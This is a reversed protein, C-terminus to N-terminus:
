QRLAFPLRVGLSLSPLLWPDSKVRLHIVRDPGCIAAALMSKEHEPADKPVHWANGEFRLPKDAAGLGGQLKLLRCLDGVDRIPKNHKWKCM